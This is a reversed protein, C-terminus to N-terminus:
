FEGVPGHLDEDFALLPRFNDIEDAVRIKEQDVHIFSEGLTRPFAQNFQVIM